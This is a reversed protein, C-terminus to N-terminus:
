IKMMRRRHEEDPRGAFRRAEAGSLFVPGGLAAAGVFVRAAKESMLMVALASQWSGGLTIIGHNQLLIVRPPAQYKEIYASTENRIAQALKLGPDVHPVFVSAIGCCGAEDSMMRHEAFDRARPSCLIQNVATAHSHAVFRIGPLSLLYAHFMAELSPKKAKSDVRSAMLVQDIQADTLRNEDLLALLPALHCEVVHSPNLAALSAGSAKVFFTNGDLRASTNGEGALVLGREERGIERSLALLDKLASKRLGRGAALERDCEAKRRGSEAKVKAKLM